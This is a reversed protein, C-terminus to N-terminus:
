CCGVWQMCREWLNVVSSSFQSLAILGDLSSSFTYSQSFRLSHVALDSFLRDGLVFSRSEKFDAALGLELKQDPLNIIPQIFAGSIVASENKVEFDALFGEVVTSNSQQYVLQVRGQQPTVPAIAGVQWRQLGETAKYDGFLTEGGGVLNKQSFSFRVGESGLAYNEDDSAELELQWPAAAKLSIILLTPDEGRIEAQFSAVLPDQQLTYLIRNLDTQSFPHGVLPQLKRRVYADRLGRALIKLEVQRSVEEFVVTGAELDTKERNLRVRTLFYGKEVYYNSLKEQLLLLTAVTAEKGLYEQVLSDLNEQVFVEGEVRVGRLIFAMSTELKLDLEQAQVLEFGLGV